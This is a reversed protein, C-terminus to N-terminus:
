TPEAECSVRIKLKGEIRLGGFPRMLFQNDIENHDYGNYINEAREKIGTVRFKGGAVHIGSLVDLIERKINESTRTTYETPYVDEINYWFVIGFDVTLFAYEGPNWNEFYEGDKVDFFSYNGKHEDPFVPFYERDRGGSAYIAPYKYEKGDRMKTLRQAKGFANDLWSLGALLKENVGNITNDILQPNTLTPQSPNNM